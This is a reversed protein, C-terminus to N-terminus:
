FVLLFFIMGFVFFVWVVGDIIVKVLFLLCSIFCSVWWCFMRLGFFVMEDVLCNMLWDKLLILFFVLVMLKLMMFFGLLLVCNLMWLLCYVGFFILVWISCLSMLLVLLNRLLFIVLVMMVIGLEECKFM